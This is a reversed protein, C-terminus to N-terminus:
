GQWLYVFSHVKLVLCVFRNVNLAGRVACLNKNSLIECLFAPSSKNRLSNLAHRLVEFKVYKITSSFFM